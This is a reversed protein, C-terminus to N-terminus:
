IELTTAVDVSEEWNKTSCVRSLCDRDRSRDYLVYTCKYTINEVRPSAHLIWRDLTLRTSAFRCFQPVLAAAAPRSIRPLLLWSHRTWRFIGFPMDARRIAAPKVRPWSIIVIRGDNPRHSFTVRITGRTQGVARVSKVRTWHIGTRISNHQQQALKESSSTADM